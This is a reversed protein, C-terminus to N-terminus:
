FNLNYKDIILDSNESFKEYKLNEKYWINTFLDLNLVAWSNFFNAQLDKLLINKYLEDDFFEYDYAKSSDSNLDNLQSQTIKKVALVKNNIINVNDNQDIKNNKLNVMSILYWDDKLDSKLLIIDTWTWTDNDVLVEGSSYINRIVWLKNEFVYLDNIFKIESNNYAIQNFVNAIFSSVFFLVIVSIFIAIILEILTLAKKSYIM